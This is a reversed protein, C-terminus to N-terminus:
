QQRDKIIRPRAGCQLYRLQMMQHSAIPPSPRLRFGPSEMSTGPGVEGTGMAEGGASEVSVAEHVQLIIEAKGIVPQLM